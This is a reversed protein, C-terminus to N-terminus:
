HCKYKTCQTLQSKTTRIQIYVPALWAEWEKHLYFLDHTYMKNIRNLLHYSYSKNSTKSTKILKTITSSLTNTRALSVCNDAMKHDLPAIKSYRYRTNGTARATRKDIRSRSSKPHTSFVTQPQVLLFQNSGYAQQPRWKISEAAQTKDKSWEAGNCSLFPCCCCFSSLSFFFFFATYKFWIFMPNPSMQFTEFGVSPFSRLSPQVVTVYNHAKRLVYMGYHVSSSLPPAFAHKQHLYSLSMYIYIHLIYLM